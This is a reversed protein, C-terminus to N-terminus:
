KVMIKRLLGSLRDVAEERVRVIELFQEKTSGGVTGPFIEHKVDVLGAWADKVFEEMPMGFAQSKTKGMAADHLETRVPGPSIHQIQVNTDRLQERLCMIFADLAAKSAAYAPMNFAPVLSIPSGTFILNTPSSRSLLHPLIAHVLSVQSTFNTTIERYFAALDVTEPNRFNPRSQTAANLMVCDITPHNRLEQRRGVATVKIGESIFHDAMARGIGGTAGVLLVHKYPFSM